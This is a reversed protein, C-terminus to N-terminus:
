LNPDLIYGSEGRLIIRKITIRSPDKQCFSLFGHDACTKRSCSQTLSFVGILGTLTVLM